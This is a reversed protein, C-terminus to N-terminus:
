GALPKLAPYLQTYHTFREAYFIAAKRQPRRVEEVHILAKCAAAVSPYQATGVAALIAAGLAAGETASVTAVTARYIDAQLQRWFPSRAGGGSLRIQQIPIQIQRFIAVQEAMGFTIGELVARILHARTHRASLGVFAGRATPDAYPCREGTLYPAFLLHEAGPEVTEAEAIM